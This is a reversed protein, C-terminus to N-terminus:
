KLKIHVKNKEQIKKYKEKAINKESKRIKINFRNESKNNNKLKKDISKNNTKNNYTEENDGISYNFKNKNKSLSRNFTKTLSRDNILKRTINTKTKRLKNHSIIYNKLEEKGKTSNLIDNCTNFNKKINSLKSLKNAIMDNNNISKNKNNKSKINDKYVKILNLNDKQQSHLLKNTSSKLYNINTTIINKEKPFIENNKNYLEQPSKINLNKNKNLVFKEKRELINNNNTIFKKNYINDFKIKNLEESHKKRINSKLSSIMKKVPTKPYNIKNVCISVNKSSANNIGDKSEDNNELNNCLNDGSFNKIENKYIKQLKKVNKINTNVNFSNTDKQIRYIDISVNKEEEAFKNFKNSFHRIILHNPSKSNKLYNEKLTIAIVEKKKASGEEWTDKINITKTDKTSENKFNTNSKNNISSNTICKNKNAKSKSKSPLKKSINIYNNNQKTNNNNKSHKVKQINLRETLIRKYYNINKTKLLLNSKYLNCDKKTEQSNSNDNQEIYNNMNKNEKQNEFAKYRCEESKNIDYTYDNNLKDTIESEKNNNVLLQKIEKNIIIINKDFNEIKDVLNPYKEEFIKKGNLYFRHKKIQELNIRKNPNAVLINKLLDIANRDINKPYKVKCKVIKNFLDNNNKGDFPLYGCLMVFLIIGCSWIDGLMGNYKNGEIMEPPAYSPSGCPTSLYENKSCFNSLGFDIIKLIKNEGLLINEPKLDRHIIQNFHLYSLGNILQFFYFSSINPDLRKKSIIQKFLEGYKCYEMIIYYNKPDEKIDQVRIINPHHAKKLIYIERKIRDYNNKNLIFQKDIIKIAVKEKTIKNVGIKVKSFTGKGLIGKIEYETLTLNENNM